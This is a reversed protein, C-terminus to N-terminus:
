KELETSAQQEDMYQRHWTEAAAKAQNLEAHALRTQRILLFAPAALIIFCAAAAILARQWSPAAPWFSLAPTTRMHSGPADETTVTKLAQRFDATTELQKQCEPCDVLHEELRVCEESSLKGM